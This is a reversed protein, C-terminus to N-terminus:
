TRPGQGDLHERCWLELVLLAWLRHSNNERGSLHRRWLRDVYAPNLIGRRRLADPSLVDRVFGQLGADDRLWNKLPISNGLKDEREAVERPLVDAVADQLLDKNAADSTSKLSSPVRAVYQVLVPDLLPFRGRLGYARLLELRRVHFDVETRYDGYLMRSLPDPGDAEEYADRVPRLADGFEDAAWRWEPTLLRELEQRRYYIRWRNAHLDAPFEFSYAFRKAKIVLSKKRRGDPLLQLAASIPRRVFAPVLGYWRALRDALYVPHGAFAEDGGDGTLILDVDGRAERALVATSVEVGVDSFPEQQLAAVEGIRQVMEPVFPVEHHRTRWARSVARAYRSEDYSEGRCRYSFTHVPRDLTSGMISVVSSSDLGGSLYAGPRESGNRTRLHVARRLLESVREVHAERPADSPDAFSLKWFREERTASEGVHLLHAPKLKRVGAFFTDAGPNYKMVLYRVLVTPDLNSSPAAFSRLHRLSSCFHITPGGSEEEVYFLPEVGFHDRAIWLRGHGPDCVAVAFGGNARALFSAGERRCGRLLLEAPTTDESCGLTAQLEHPNLVEGRLLVAAEGASERHLVCEPVRGSSPGLMGLRYGAGETFLVEESRPDLGWAEIYTSRKPSGGGLTGFIM